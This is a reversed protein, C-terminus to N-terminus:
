YMCQHCLAILALLAILAIVAVLARSVGLQCVNYLAYVAYNDLVSSKTM